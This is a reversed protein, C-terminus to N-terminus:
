LASELLTAARQLAATAEALGAVAAAKDDKDM